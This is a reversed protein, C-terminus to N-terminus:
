LWISSSSRCFCVMVVLVSMCCVTLKPRLPKYVRPTYASGMRCAIALPQGQRKDSGKNRGISLLHRRRDATRPEARARGVGYLVVDVPQQRRRWRLTTITAPPHFSRYWTIRHLRYFKIYMIYVNKQLKLPIMCVHLSFRTVGKISETVIDVPAARQREVPAPRSRTTLVYIAV